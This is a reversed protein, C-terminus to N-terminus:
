SEISTALACTVNGSAIRPLILRSAAGAASLAAAEAISGVGHLELIRMSQTQVRPQALKLQDPAIGIRQVSLAEAAEVFAAEGAKADLTAIAHLCHARESAVARRVLDVIEPATASRRFGIGAVIM